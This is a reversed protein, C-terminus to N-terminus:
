RRELLGNVEGRLRLRECQAESLKANRPSTEPQMLNDPETSHDGSDSLVHVLEHALAYALDRAGYAVWVTNALEPRPGANGLGIAEADFAPRNRTDEVFFVGPKSVAITRLLERSVPTSYFHFRRPTELVQLEVATLAVRCQALLRASEIVASRIEDSSWRTGVFNYVYLRLAHTAGSIVHLDVAPVTRVQVVRIEDTSRAPALGGFLLLAAGLALARLRRRPLRM